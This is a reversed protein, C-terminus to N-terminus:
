RSGTTDSQGFILTFVIVTLAPQLVVWAVGIATQKYRIKVDRSALFYLLERYKWVAGLDLNLYGSSPKIVVTRVSM